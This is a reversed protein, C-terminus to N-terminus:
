PNLQQNFRSAVAPTNWRRAQSVLITCQGVLPLALMFIVRRCAATNPAAANNRGCTFDCAAHGLLGTRMTAPPAPPMLSM